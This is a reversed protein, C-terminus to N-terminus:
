LESKNLVQRQKKDKFEKSKAEEKKLIPDVLKDYDSKLKKEFRYFDANTMYIIQVDYYFHLKDEEYSKLRELENILKAARNDHIKIKNLLEPDGKTTKVAFFYEPIFTSNRNILLLQKYAELSNQFVELGIKYESQSERKIKEIESHIEDFGSANKHGKFTTGLLVTKNSNQFIEYQEQVLNRSQFFTRLSGNIFEHDFLRYKSPAMERNIFPYPSPELFGKYITYKRLFSQHLSDSITLYENFSNSLSRTLSLLPFDADIEYYDLFIRNDNYSVKFDLVEELRSSGRQDNKLWHVWYDVSISFTDGHMKGRENEIRIQNNFQELSFNPKFGLFFNSDVEAKQYQQETEHNFMENKSNENEDISSSCGVLFFLVSAKALFNTMVSYIYM